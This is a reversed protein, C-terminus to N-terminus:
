LHIWILHRGNALKWRWGIAGFNTGKKPIHLKRRLNMEHKEVNASGSCLRVFFFMSKTQVVWHSLANWLKFSAKCFCGTSTNGSKVLGNTKTVSVEVMPM